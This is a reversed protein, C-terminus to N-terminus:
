FLLNEKQRIKDIDIKTVYDAIGLERMKEYIEEVWKEETMSKIKLLYDFRSLDPILYQISGNPGSVLKNRLLHVMSYDDEFILNSILIQKHDTFEIKIDEAKILHFLSLQNLNWALKYEKLTSVIGILEFDFEYVAALRNKKM